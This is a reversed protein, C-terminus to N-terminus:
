RVYSTPLGTWLGRMATLNEAVQPVGIISPFLTITPVATPVLNDAFDRMAIWCGGVQDSARTTIGFSMDCLDGVM